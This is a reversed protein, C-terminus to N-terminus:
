SNNEYVIENLERKIAKWNPLYKDMYNKFNDNHHREKLHIMEHVIVYELNRPHKKALELNVWIRKRDQNCSGWKTKMQKVGWFDLKIGIIKEWKNIYEPIIKKLEERYWEKMVNERKEATSNPKVYLEIYRNNNIEVRQKTNTEHVNLRYRRGKFYHSEGSIYERPSQRDQASFKSRQKKIWPIKSILFLRVADEKMKKPVSLRVKGDPPHVSLHINKISKREVSVEIEGVTM